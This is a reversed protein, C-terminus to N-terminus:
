GLLMPQVSESIFAQHSLFGDSILHHIGLVNASLHALLGELEETPRGKKEDTPNSEISLRLQENWDIRKIEHILAEIGALASSAGPQDPDASKRLRDACGRLCRAVSRPGEPHQFLLEIV